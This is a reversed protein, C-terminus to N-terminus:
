SKCQFPRRDVGTLQIGKYPREDSKKYGLFPVYKNGIDHPRKLFSSVILGDPAVPPWLLLSIIRFENTNRTCQVPLYRVGESRIERLTEGVCKKEKCITIPQSTWIIVEFRMHRTDRAEFKGSRQCPTKMAASSRQAIRGRSRMENTRIHARRM